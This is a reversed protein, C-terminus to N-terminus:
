EESWRVGVNLNTANPFATANANLCLFQGAGRLVVAKDNSRTFDWVLSGVQSNGTLPLGLQDAEVTGILAGLGAPNATYALVAASAPADNSDHAVAAVAGSIGGIDTASRLIASVPFNLAATAVSGSIWVKLIRITKSGSGSITFFDTAGTVLALGTKVAAYTAKIGETDVALQTGSGPEGAILGALTVQLPVASTPIPGLLSQDSPENETVDVYVAQAGAALPIAGTMQGIPNLFLTDTRVRLKHPTYGPWLIQRVQGEEDLLEFVWNTLNWVVAWVPKEGAHSPISLPQQGVALTGVTSPPVAKILM